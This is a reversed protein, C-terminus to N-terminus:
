GEKGFAESEADHFRDRAAGEAQEADNVAVDARVQDGQASTLASKAAEAADTAARRARAAASRAKEVAEAAAGAAAEM